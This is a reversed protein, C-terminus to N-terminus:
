DEDSSVPEGVINYYVAKPKKPKPSELKPSELKVPEPM